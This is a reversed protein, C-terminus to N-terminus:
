EDATKEVEHLCGTTRFRQENEQSETVIRMLASKGDRAIDIAQERSIPYVIRVGNSDPIEWTIYGNMEGGCMADM